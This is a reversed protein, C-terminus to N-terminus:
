GNQGDRQRDWRDWGGEGIWGCIWGDARRIKGEEWDEEKEGRWRSLFEVM